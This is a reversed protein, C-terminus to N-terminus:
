GKVTRDDQDAVIGSGEERAIARWGGKCYRTIKEAMIDLAEEAEEKSRAYEISMVCALRLRKIRREIKKAVQLATERAANKEEIIDGTGEREM